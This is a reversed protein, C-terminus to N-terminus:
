QGVHLSGPSVLLSHARSRFHILGAATTSDALPVGRAGARTHTRCSGRRACEPLNMRVATITCVRRRM